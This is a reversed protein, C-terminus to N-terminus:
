NEQWWAIPENSLQEFSSHFLNILIVPCSNFSTGFLASAKLLAFTKELLLFFDFFHQRKLFFNKQMKTNETRAFGGVINGILAFLKAKL